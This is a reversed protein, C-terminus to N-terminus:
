QVCVGEVEVEGIYVGLVKSTPTDALLRQKRKLNLAVALAAWSSALVLIAPVMNEPPPVGLSRDGAFGMALDRHPM